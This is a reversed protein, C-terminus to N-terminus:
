TGEHMGHFQSPDLNFEQCEQECPVPRMGPRPEPGRCVWGRYESHRRRPDGCTCLDGEYEPLEFGAAKALQYMAQSEGADLFGSGFDMSSHLVDYIVQVAETM